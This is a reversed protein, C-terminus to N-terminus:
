RNVLELWRRHADTDLDVVVEVEGPRIRRAARVVGTVSDDGRGMTYPQGVEPMEGGVVTIEPM